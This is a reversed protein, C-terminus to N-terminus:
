GIKVEGTKILNDELKIQNQKIELQKKKIAEENKKIEEIIQEIRKDIITSSFVKVSDNVASLKVKKKTNYAQTLLDALRQDDAKNITQHYKEYLRTVRETIESYIVEQTSTCGKRMKEQLQKCVPLAQSSDPTIQAQVAYVFCVSLIVLIIKKM